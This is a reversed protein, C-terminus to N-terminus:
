SSKTQDGYLIEIDSEARMRELAKARADRQAEALLTKRIEDQVKAFPKRYGGRREAVRVIEFRDDRVFVGSVKGEDLKFLEEEVETDVLSGPEIWGHDGGDAASAGDSFERAVDAFSEGRKLRTLVTQMVTKANDQGGHKDHSVVIRQWRLQLPLDYEEAHQQYYKLLEARAINAPEKAKVRLFEAAMAMKRFAEQSESLSTSPTTGMSERWVQVLKQFSPDTPRSMLTELEARSTLGTAAIIEDVREDFLANIQEEIGDIQEQKLSRRVSQLVVERDLFDKLSRDLLQGVEDNFRRMAAAQSEAPAQKLMQRQTEIMPRFPRIVDAAFVPQGSIRAVVKEDLENVLWTTGTDEASTQLIDSDATSRDSASQLTTRPPPPGMVANEDAIQKSGNQCGLVLSFM